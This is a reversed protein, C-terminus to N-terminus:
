NEVVEWVQAGDFDQVLRLYPVAVVPHLYPEANAVPPRWRFVDGQLSDPRTVIQPVLVYRVNYRRLLEENAPDGPDRWFARLDDWMQEVQETHQFFPQPRFFVTNRQMVVPAWDGEHDGPHNLIIDDPRSNQTLWHMAQLDAHSSFAGYIQLPTNKSVVVLPDVFNIGLAVILATGAMIPFSYRRLTEIVRVGGWREVLWVLGRAGFYLYPIIPGHWAISFPYDYKFLPLGPLIAKIIGISSFDLLLILWLLMAMDFLRRKRIGDVIGMAAFPLIPLHYLTFQVLHRPDIEFPSRIDGSLLPAIKSLWPLLGIVALTPIGIAMLLWRVVSFNWAKRMVLLALLLSGYGLMMIITFDPQALPLGACCVAACFFDARRGEKAFRLAYTLFALGFVLGLMATFHSDLYATLLGSSLLAAVAMFIGLRRSESKEDAFVTLENGFDYATWAFLVAMVAGVAIQITQLGANLQTGLYAVLAPFGPSYLYSVEPHYPALTTLSGGLKLMLALYGFGQADTDLPVPLVLAPAIYILGIVGILLLERPGPWGTYEKTGGQEEARFMGASMTGALFIGVLMAFWLYDIVLTDWGFASAYFIGGTVVIALTFSAALGIRPGRSPLAPALMAGAGFCVSAFVFIVFIPM